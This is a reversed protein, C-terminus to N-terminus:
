KTCYGNYKKHHVSEKMKMFDKIENSEEMKWINSHREPRSDQWLGFPGKAHLCVDRGIAKLPMSKMDIAVM